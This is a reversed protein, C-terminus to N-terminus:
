AEDPKGGIHCHWSAAISRDKLDGSKAAGTCLLTDVAKLLGTETSVSFTLLGEATLCHIEFCLEQILLQRGLWLLRGFKRDLEEDTGRLNMTLLLLGNRPEMPERIILDGTKASLKWHVQNLSDGPRYLRHEHNEAYGGGAKPTWSRPIHQQFERSLDMPVPTPRVLITSKERCRVPFSFLGMYDSIRLAEVTVSIGGCHDTPLDESEQYCFTEGTILRKLKLRGRFPPMPWPASGLLWLEAKEGAELLNPVSPAARFRLLAPLTLVLSFWPLVAVTILILFSLWQGYAIYFVGCLILAALYTLRRVAMDACNPLM